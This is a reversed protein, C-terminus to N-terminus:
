FPSFHWRLSKSRPMKAWASCGSKLIEKVASTMLNECVFFLFLSFVVLSRHNQHYFCWQQHSFVFSHTLLHFLWEKYGQHASFCKLPSVFCWVKLHGLGCQSENRYALLPCLSVWSQSFPLTEKGIRDLKPSHTWQLRLQESTSGM